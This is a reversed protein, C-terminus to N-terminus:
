LHEHAGYASHPDGPRGLAVWGDYGAQALARESATGRAPMPKGNAIPGMLTHVNRHGTDCCWAWNSALDPGGMGLPIVHHKIIVLPTPTHRAHLQCVPATGSM